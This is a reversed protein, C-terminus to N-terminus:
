DDLHKLCDDVAAQHAEWLDPDAQIHHAMSLTKPDAFILDLDAQEKQYFARFEIATADDAKSRVFFHIVLRWLRLLFTKFMPIGAIFMEFGM